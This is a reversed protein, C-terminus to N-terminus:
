GGEMESMSPQYFLKLSLGRAQVSRPSMSGPGYGLYWGVPMERRVGGSSLPIPPEPVTASDPMRSDEATFTPSAPPGCGTLHHPLIVLTSISVSRSDM